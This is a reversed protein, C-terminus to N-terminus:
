RVKYEFSRFTAIIVMLGRIISSLLKVLLVNVLYDGLAILSALFSIRGPMM